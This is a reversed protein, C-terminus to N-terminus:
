FWLSPRLYSFIYPFAESSIFNGNDGPLLFKVVKMRMYVAQLKRYVPRKGELIRQKKKKKKKKTKKVNM